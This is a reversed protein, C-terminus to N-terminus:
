TPAPFTVPYLDDPVGETIATPVRDKARERAEEKSIYAIGDVGNIALISTQASQTQVEDIDQLFVEIKGQSGEVEEILAGSIGYALYLMSILFLTVTMIAVGSWFIKQNKVISAVAEAIWYSITNINM